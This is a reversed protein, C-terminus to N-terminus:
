FLRYIFPAVTSGQTFVVLLALMAIMVLIPGLWWRKRVKMFTWFEDAVVKDRELVLQATGIILLIAVLALLGETTV